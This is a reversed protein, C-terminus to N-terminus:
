KNEISPHVFIPTKSIKRDTYPFKLTEPVEPLVKSNDYTFSKLCHPWQMLKLLISKGRNIQILYICICDHSCIAKATNDPVLKNKKRALRVSELGAVGLSFIIKPLNVKRKALHM